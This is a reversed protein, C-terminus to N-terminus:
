DFESMAWNWDSRKNQLGVGSTTRTPGGSTGSTTPSACLTLNLHHIPSSPPPESHLLGPSLRQQGAPRRRRKSPQSGFEKRVHGLGSLRRALPVVVRRSPFIKQPLSDLFFPSFLFFNPVSNKPPKKGLLLRRSEAPKWRPGLRDLSLSVFRGLLSSSTGSGAPHTRAGRHTPPDTSRSAKLQQFGFNEGRATFTKKEGGGVGWGGCWVRKPLDRGKESSSPPCSTRREARRSTPRKRLAASIEATAEM